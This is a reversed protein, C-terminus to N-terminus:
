GSGPPGTGLWRVLGANCCEDAPHSGANLLMTFYAISAKLKLLCIRYSATDLHIATSHRQIILQAVNWDVTGIDVHLLQQQGLM